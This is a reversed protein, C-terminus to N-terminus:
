APWSTSCGTASRGSPGGVLLPGLGMGVLTTVILFVATVTARIRAGALGLMAAHMSPAAM